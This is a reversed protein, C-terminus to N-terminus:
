AGRAERLGNEVMGTKNQIGPPQRGYIAFSLIVQWRAALQNPLFSAGTSVPLYCLPQPKEGRAGEGEQDSELVTRHVTSVTGTLGRVEM